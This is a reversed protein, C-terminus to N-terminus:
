GAKAVCLACVTAIRAPRQGAVAGVELELAQVAHAVREIVLDDAGLLSPRRAADIRRHAAVLVQQGIQHAAQQLVAGVGGEDVADLRRLAQRDFRHDGIRDRAPSAQRLDHVRADRQRALEIPALPQVGAAEVEGIGTRHRRRQALGHGLGGSRLGPARRRDDAAALLAPL